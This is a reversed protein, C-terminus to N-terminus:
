QVLAKFSNVITQLEEEAENDRADYILAVDYHNAFELIKDPSLTAVLALAEDFKDQQQLTLVQYFMSEILNMAPSTYIINAM